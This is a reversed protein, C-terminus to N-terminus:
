PKSQFGRSTPLAIVPEPTCFEEDPTECTVGLPVSQTLDALAARPLGATAVVALILVLKFLVLRSSQRRVRSM